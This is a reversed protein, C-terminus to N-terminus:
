YYYYYHYLKYLAKFDLSSSASIATSFVLHFYTHKWTDNLHQLATVCDFLLLYHTGSQNLWLASLINLSIPTPGHSSWWRLRPHDCLGHRHTPRCCIASISWRQTATCRVKFTTLAVKYIVRQRVPLWNERCEATRSSVPHCISLLWFSVFTVIGAAGTLLGENLLWRNQVVVKLKVFPHNGLAPKVTIRLIPIM